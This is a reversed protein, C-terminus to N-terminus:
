GLLLPAESAAPSTISKTPSANSWPGTPTATRGESLNASGTVAPEAPQTNTTSEVERSAIPFKMQESSEISQTTGNTDELIGL